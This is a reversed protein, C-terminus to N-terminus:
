ATKRRLTAASVLTVLLGVPLPETFSVAANILPNELMAKADRGQKIAEEVEAQSAGKERVNEVLYAAYKDAFDPMFNYYIVLWSAVYFASSILTILIGATFARGFTIQGGLVNDRYSRVGFYVFLLSILITTYGAVVARDFGIQEAFVTNISMLVAVVIGSLVGFTLVVKMM